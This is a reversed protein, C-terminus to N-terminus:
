KEGLELRLVKSLIIEKDTEIGIGSVYICPSSLKFFLLKNFVNVKIYQIGNKIEFGVVKGIISDNSDLFDCEHYEEGRMSIILMDSTIISAIDKEYKFIKNNVTDGPYRKLPVLEIVGENTIM